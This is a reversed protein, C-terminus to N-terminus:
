QQLQLLLSELKPRVQAVMALNKKREYRELAQELAVAAEALRGGAALVAALDCLADGQQGLADMREAVSVAERALREAEAHEGRHADVLAQVQRWLAQTLFDDETGLERGRQAFVEAEDYLGLACLSRGLLPAYTSLLAWSSQRDLLECSRRLYRVATRHDGAFVAIDARAEWGEDGTGLERLRNGAADAIASAEDFRMLM